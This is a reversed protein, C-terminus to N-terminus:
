SQEETLEVIEVPPLLLEEWLPDDLYTSGRWYTYAQDIGHAYDEADVLRMDATFSEEAAVRWITCPADVFQEVFRKAHRLARFAFVSQFRSPRNPFQETRVLEFILECSVDWLNDNDEEYLDQTCYHRGHSSLGEPYLDEVGGNDGPFQEDIPQLEITEGSVLTDHRDVHYFLETM